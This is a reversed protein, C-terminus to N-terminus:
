GHKWVRVIMQLERTSFNHYRRQEFGTTFKLKKLQKQLSTRKLEAIRTKLRKDLLKFSSLDTVISNNFYIGTAARSKSNSLRTNGTLFKVRGILKRFAGKPNVPKERWYEAFVANMRARYKAVKAASPSIEFQGPKLHFRYGLYEFKKADNDVLKFESTKAANHTLSNDGFIAIILDKFSGLIKGAPPRAFVAVIDDVYRCYLVLGPIARIANDVPRLYLEALYASIGVGRPVGTATGSINGYSDLVQKIYKKSAPSLLQDRDLKEVLRKRDISEYFSSIDTRVLEFPFKSGLMDRLQCVLDHRNAQKVGYIRHVNFQLQKIVFFTEPEADICFVPKGKPGNKQSLEIKFSPKLVKQSMEDMIADVASSKATKLEALEAKLAMLQTEFDAAALTAEIKRLNRVEQIKDRVAFTFPELTPFYRAALDVGKRNEADYTRRFNEATFMQDLM